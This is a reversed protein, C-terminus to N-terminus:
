RGFSSAIKRSIIRSTVLTQTLATAGVQQTEDSSGYHCGKKGICGTSVNTITELAKGNLSFMCGGIATISERQRLKRSACSCYPRIVPARSTSTYPSHYDCCHWAQRMSACYRARL